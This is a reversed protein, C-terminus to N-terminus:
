EVEKKHTLLRHLAQAGRDAMVGFAIIGGLVDGALPHWQQTPVAQPTDRQVQMPHGQPQNGDLAQQWLNGQEVSQDHFDGLVEDDEVRRRLRDTLSQDSDDTEMLEKREPPLDAADDPRVGITDRGHQRMSPVEATGERRQRETGRARVVDGSAWRTGDTYLDVSPGHFHTIVGKDGPQPAEPKSTEARRALRALRHADAEAGRDLRPEPPRRDSSAPRERAAPHDPRPVPHEPERPRDPAADSGGGPKDIGM